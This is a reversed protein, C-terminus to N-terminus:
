PVLRECRCVCVFCDCACVCVCVCACALRAQVDLRLARGHGASWEAIADEVDLGVANSRRHGDVAVEVGLASSPRQQSSLLVGGVKGVAVPHPRRADVGTRRRRQVAHQPQGVGNEVPRNRLVHILLQARNIRRIDDPSRTRTNKHNM